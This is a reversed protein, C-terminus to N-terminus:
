KVLWSCQLCRARMVSSLVMLIGNRAITKLRLLKPDQVVCESPDSSYEMTNVAGQGVYPLVQDLVPYSDKHKSDSRFSQSVNSYARHAGVLTDGTFSQGKFSEIRSRKVQEEIAVRGMLRMNDNEKHVTIYRVPNSM